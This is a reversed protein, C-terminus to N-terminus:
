DKRDAAAHTAAKTRGRELADAISELDATHQYEAGHKAHNGFKLGPVARQIRGMAKVRRNILADRSAM